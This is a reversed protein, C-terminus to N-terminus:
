HPYPIARDLGKKYKPWESKGIFYTVPFHDLGLDGIYDFLQTRLNSKGDGINPNDQDFVVIIRALDNGDMDVDPIVIVLDIGVAGKYHDNLIKEATKRIKEKQEANMAAANAKPITAHSTQNRIKPQAPQPYAIARDLGKKYEPWESKGIFYSVPFHDLGLDGMYDFLQLGLDAKVGVILNPDDQDFVVIIQALDNGDMDVDPIVTILDIGVIGDYHKKLIKEATKRIKEKQEANM